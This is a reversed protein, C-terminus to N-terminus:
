QRFQTKAHVSFLEKLKIRQYKGTVTVPVDKGFVVVKPCKSFPLRLRCAALIGAASVELGTERVIYAGVEEGYWDNDEVVFIKFPITTNM